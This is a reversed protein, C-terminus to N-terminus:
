ASRAVAVGTAPLNMWRRPLSQAAPVGTSAGPIRMSAGWIASSAALPTATARLAYGDATRQLQEIPVICDCGEPLVAGTSVEICSGADELVQGHMGAMQAGAVRLVAPMVPQWRTAVGDMMVRDFPPQPGEAVVAQALVRGVADPLAIQETVVDPTSSRLVADAEEVSILPRMLAHPHRPIAWDPSEPTIAM